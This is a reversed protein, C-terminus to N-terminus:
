AEVIGLLQEIRDLRQETTLKKIKEKSKFDAKIKDEKAKKESLATTLKSVKKPKVTYIM